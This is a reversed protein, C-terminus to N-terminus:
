EDADLMALMEQVEQQDAWYVDIASRLDARSKGLLHAAINPWVLMIM